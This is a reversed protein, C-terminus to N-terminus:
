ILFRLDFRDGSWSDICPFERMEDAIGLGGRKASSQFISKRTIIKSKQNKFHAQKARVSM